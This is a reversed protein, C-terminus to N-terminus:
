SDRKLLSAKLEQQLIKGWKTAPRELVIKKNLLRLLPNVADQISELVLVFDFQDIISFLTKKSYEFNYAISFSDVAHGQEKIRQTVRKQSEEISGLAIFILSTVYEHEKFKNVTELIKNDRLNSEITFDLREGLAKNIFNDLTYDLAHYLNEDPLDPM